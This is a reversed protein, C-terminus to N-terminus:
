LLTNRWTRLANLFANQGEHRNRLAEVQVEEMTGATVLRYVETVQDQGRRYLRHILQDYDEPSWPLSYWVVVNGGDQMNLGHAMSKPHAVLIPIQGANWRALLEREKRISGSASFHVAEPFRRLIADLEHQYQYALLVSRGSGVRRLLKALANLKASHIPQAEREDDYVWGSCVQLLKNSLVGASRAIIEAGSDLVTILERELERYVSRAEKPLTLETDEVYCDPVDLWDSSKLTLTIDAIRAELEQKTGPRPVWNPHESYPNEPRFYTDRFHEFSKGLRHGHDLLRIQAFLDLLGTPIPTGTMGWHHTCKAQLVFRVANVRVSAHNKARTLEDWVVHDFAPKRVEDLYRMRFQELMEYNILYLHASRKLLADWGRKTRLNAVRVDELGEWKAAEAPWTLNTVRLPSVVLAGKLAGDYLKDRLAHLVTATKGLGCGMFLAARPNALLHAYALSQPESPLFPVRTMPAGPSCM